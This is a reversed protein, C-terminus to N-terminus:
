NYPHLYITISVGLNIRKLHVTVTVIAGATILGADDEDDLVVFFM